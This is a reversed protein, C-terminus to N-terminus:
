ISINMRKRRENYEEVPSTKTILEFGNTDYIVDFDILIRDVQSFYKKKRERLFGVVQTDLVSLDIGELYDENWVLMSLKLLDELEDCGMTLPSLPGIFDLFISSFKNKDLQRHTFIHCDLMMKPNNLILQYIHEYLEECHEISRDSKSNINMVNDIYQKGYISFITGHFKISFPITKLMKKAENDLIMIQYIQDTQECYIYANNKDVCIIHMDGYIENKWGMVVERESQSFSRQSLYDDLIKPNTNHEEMGLIIQENKPRNLETLVNYIYKKYVYQFYEYRLKLIKNINFRKTM